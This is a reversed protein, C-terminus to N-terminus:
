SFMLIISWSVYLNRPYIRMSVFISPQSTCTARSYSARSYGALTNKLLDAYDEELQFCKWGSIVDEPSEFHFIAALRKALSSTQTKDKDEPKTSDESSRPMEFSPRMSLEAKAELMREMVPADGLLPTSTSVQIDPPISYAPSQPIPSTHDLSSRNSKMKLGLRPISRLLKNESLKRRNKEKNETAQEERTKGLPLNSNQPTPLSDDDEEEESSQGDFRANFDVQSGAAAIMGFVSQNLFPSSGQPATCDEDADDGDQFREPIDMTVQHVEKRRRAFKRAMRKKVDEEPAM